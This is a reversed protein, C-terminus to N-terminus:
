WQRERRKTQRYLELARQLQENHRRVQEMAEHFYTDLALGIDLFILKVLSLLLPLVQELNGGLARAFRPFTLQVYQNYAGLYWVPELGVRQHTHGVRLRGEFYAPDFVAELLGAFYEAQLVKLRELQDPDRLFGATHSQSMLHQYFEEAFARAHTAFIPRLARVNEVDQATIGLFARRQQREPENMGYHDLFSM